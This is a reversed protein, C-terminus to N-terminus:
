LLDIPVILIKLPYSSINHRLSYTAASYVALVNCRILRDSIIHETHCVTIYWLLLTPRMIITINKQKITINRLQTCFDNDLDFQTLTKNLSM